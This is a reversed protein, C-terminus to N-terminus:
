FSDEKLIEKLKREEWNKDLLGPIGFLKIARITIGLGVGFVVWLFWPSAWQNIYYNIAGVIVIALLGRFIRSYFQKLDVVRNIAKQYRQSHFIQNDTKM